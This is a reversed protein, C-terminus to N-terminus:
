RLGEGWLTAPVTRLNSTSPLEFVRGTRVGTAEQWAALARECGSDMAMRTKQPSPAVLDDDIGGM